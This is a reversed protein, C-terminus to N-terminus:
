KNIYIWGIVNVKSIKIFENLYNLDSKTIQGPIILLIINKSKGIEKFGKLSNTKIQSCINNLFNFVENQDSIQGCYIMDISKKESSVKFNELILNILDVTEKKDNIPLNILFEYKLLKKYEELNFILESKSEKIFALISGVMAGIITGILITINKSNGIPNPSITPKSILEWPDPRQAENLKYVLIQKELSALIKENREAERKLIRYELLVEKPRSISDKLAKIQTKLSKIVPSDNTLLASKNILEAELIRLKLFHSKYRTKNDNNVDDTFLNNLQTNLDGQDLGQQQSSQTLSFGSTDNSTSLAPLGDELGLLNNISYEQLNKLSQTTKKNMQKYQDNLIRETKERNKKKDRRSFEQFSKSIKNLVEEILQIDSDTYVVQLVSTGKLLNVNVAKKWSKFNRPEPEKKLNKQEKVYLYIPTLVSSSELIKTTTQLDNKANNLIKNNFISNMQSGGLTNQFGVKSKDELVIQFDGEYIPVRFNFYVASFSIGLITSAFIIKKNRVITGFFSSLSIEYFDDEFSSQINEINESFKDM